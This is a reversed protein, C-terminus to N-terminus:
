GSKLAFKVCIEFPDNRGTETWSPLLFLVDITMSVSAKNERRSKLKKFVEVVDVKNVTESM